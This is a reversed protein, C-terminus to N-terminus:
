DIMLEFHVMGVREQRDHIINRAWAKCEINILIGASFLWAILNIFLVTSTNKGSKV